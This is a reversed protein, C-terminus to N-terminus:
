PHTPTPADPRHRKAPVAAGLTEFQGRRDDDSMFSWWPTDIVGPSVDNVRVPALEVALPSVIREIAGNVGSLAIVGPMAARAGAGSRLTISDTM